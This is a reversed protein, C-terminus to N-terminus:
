GGEQAEFVEALAQRSREQGLRELAAKVKAGAVPKAGGGAPRPPPKAAPNTTAAAKAERQKMLERHKLIACAAWYEAFDMSRIQPYREFVRQVAQTRDDEANALFDFQKRAMATQRGREELRKQATPIAELTDRAQRRQARLYRGMTPVSFDEQGDGDVLKVGIKRLTAAVEDPDTALTDLLDEALNVVKRQTDAERELQEPDRAETLNPPLDAAKAQQEYSALKAKAATLETELERKEGLLKGIRKQVGHPDPKPEDNDDEVQSLDDATERGPDDPSETEPAEPSAGEAAAAAEGAEPIEGEAAPETTEATTQLPAQKDTAADSQGELQAFYSALDAGTM